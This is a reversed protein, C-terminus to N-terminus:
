PPTTYFEAVVLDTSGIQFANLWTLNQFSGGAVTFFTPTTYTNGNIILKVKTADLPFSPGPLTFATQGTTPTFTVFRAGANSTTGPPGPAGAAGATGTPGPPGGATGQIGQPGTLGQAGAAGPAGPPGPPGAPGAPGTIVITGPKEEIAQNTPIIAGIAISKVVSPNRPNAAFVDNPNYSITSGDPEEIVVGRQSIVLYNQLFAM